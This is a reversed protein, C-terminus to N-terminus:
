EKILGRYAFKWLVTVPSDNVVSLLIGKDNGLRRKANYQVMGDGRESTTGGFVTGSVPSYFPLAGVCIWDAEINDFPDPFDLPVTDNIDNWSILGFYFQGPRSFGDTTFTVFDIALLSTM